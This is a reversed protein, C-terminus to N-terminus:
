AGAGLPKGYVRLAFGNALAYEAPARDEASLHPGLEIIGTREFAPSLWGKAALGETAVALAEEHSGARAFALVRHRAGMTHTSLAGATAQALILYLEDTM